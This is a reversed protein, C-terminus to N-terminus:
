PAVSNVRINDRALQQALSKALSIEAAKVANYTMRGGSERGWISAIMVIAGGGRRRMHPVALGSARIAPFLTQDIAETWEADSTGTLDGGRALGTNNVLIDLGGFARVTEAVVREVGAPTALDAAVALVRDAAGTRARLETAAENLRDAGRACIAVCCGEAALARACALGLGRSSGTVIAVKDTLELDM